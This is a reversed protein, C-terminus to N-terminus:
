GNISGLRHQWAVGGPHRSLQCLLDHLCQQLRRQLRAHLGGQQPSVHQQGTQLQRTQIQIFRFAYFSPFFISFSEIVEYIQSCRHNGSPLSARRLQFFSRQM